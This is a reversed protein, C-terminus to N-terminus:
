QMRIDHFCYLAACVTEVSLAIDSVLTLQLLGPPTHTSSPAMTTTPVLPLKVDGTFDYM